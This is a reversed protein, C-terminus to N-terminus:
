ANGQLRALDQPTNLNSFAQESSSKDFLCPKASCDRVWDKASRGGSRLFSTLDDMLSIPWLGIVYHRRSSTLAFSPALKQLEDLLESPLLPVDLPVTAVHEFGESQAWILSSLIGALPGMERFEEPEFITEGFASYPGKPDANIVVPASTQESMNTIVHSILPRGNFDVLGKPSGFRVSKGGALVVCPFDVKSNM